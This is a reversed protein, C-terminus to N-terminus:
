PNTHEYWSARYDVHAYNGSGIGDIIAEAM